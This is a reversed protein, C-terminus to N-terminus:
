EKKTSKGKTPAKTEKRKAKREAAYEKVKKDDEILANITEVADAKKMYKLEPTDPMRVIPPLKKKPTPLRPNDAM